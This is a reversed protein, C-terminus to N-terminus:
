MGANSLMKQDINPLVYSVLVRRSKWAFAFQAFFPIKCYGFFVFFVIKIVSGFVAQWTEVYISALLTSFATWISKALRYIQIMNRVRRDTGFQMYVSVKNPGPSGSYLDNDYVTRLIIHYCCKNVLINPFLQCCTETLDISARFFPWTTTIVKM